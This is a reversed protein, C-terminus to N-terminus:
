PAIRAAHKLARLVKAFDRSALRSHTPFTLLSRSLEAAGSLGRPPEVVLDHLAPLSPLPTPYSPFVGAKKAEHSTALGLQPDALVPLRLYGCAGGELPTCLRIGSCREAAVLQRWRAAHNRRADVERTSAGEHHVVVAAALSPMRTVPGPPHYRTEGLGSGPALSAIAFLSPRGLGWQAVTLTASKVRTGRSPLSTPGARRGLIEDSVAGRLSRRLLAGGAGGTWGKGRGFSLITLDGVAGGAAEGWTSGLGQAADEILLAGAGECETRLWGWDLPFGYLSNAVVAGAGADLARRVGEADPCLSIPDVDYFLVPADSGVAATAVDFCTFAPLAIPRGAWPAVSTVHALALQLAQTGSGTLIVEDAHFRHKLSQELAIRSAEPERLADRWARLLPNLFLPSYAPLQRRIM